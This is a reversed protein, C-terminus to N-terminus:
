YKDSDNNEQATKLSNETEKLMRLVRDIKFAMLAEPVIEALKMDESAVYNEFKHWIKSLNYNHSTLLDVVTSSVVNDPHFVFYKELCAKTKIIINKSNM